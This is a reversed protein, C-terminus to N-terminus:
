GRASGGSRPWSGRWAGGGEATGVGGRTGRLRTASHSVGQDLERWPTRPCPPPAVLPCPLEPGCDQVSWSMAVSSPTRLDDTDSQTRSTSNVGRGASDHGGSSSAAGAARPWARGSRASRRPRRRCTPRILSRSNREEASASYAPSPKLRSPSHTRWCRGPPHDHHEDGPQAVEEVDVLRTQPHAEVQVVTEVELGGTTRSRERCGPATGSATGRRPPGSMAARSARAHAAGRDDYQQMRRM